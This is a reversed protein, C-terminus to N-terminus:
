KAAPHLLASVYFEISYPEIDAMSWSSSFRFLPQLQIAQQPSRRCELSFDFTQVQSSITLINMRIYRPVEPYRKTAETMTPLGTRGNRGATDVVLVSFAM